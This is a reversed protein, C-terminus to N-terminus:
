QSDLAVLDRRITSESIQLMQALDQVTVSKQRNLVGLIMQYRNEAIM